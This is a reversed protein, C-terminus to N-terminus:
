ASLWTGNQADKQGTLNCYSMETARFNSICSFQKYLGLHLQKSRQIPPFTSLITILTRTNLLLYGAGFTQESLDLFM